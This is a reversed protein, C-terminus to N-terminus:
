THKHFVYNSSSLSFGLGQYFAISTANGLQTGVEVEHCNASNLQWALDIMEKGCGQGRFESDVGILDIIMKGSNFMGQLFGVVQEQRESVMMFDGRRGKFFNGAWEGKIRNALDNPINSDNHFRSQTFSGSALERVRFEDGPAAVRAKSAITTIKEARFTVNTDVLTFGNVLLKRVSYVNDPRIKASYFSGKSLEPLRMDSEKEENAMLNFCPKGMIDSLWEDKTWEKM